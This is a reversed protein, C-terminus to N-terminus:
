LSVEMSINVNKSWRHFIRLIHQCPNHVHPSLKFNYWLPLGMLTNVIGGEGTYIKTTISIM